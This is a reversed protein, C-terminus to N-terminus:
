INGSTLRKTHKKMTSINIEKKKQNQMILNYKSDTYRFHWKMKEIFRCVFNSIFKQNENRYQFHSM